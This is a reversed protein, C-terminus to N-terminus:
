RFDDGNRLWDSVDVFDVLRNTMRHGRQRHGGLCRFADAPHPKEFPGALNDRVFFVNCGASDCCLLTYGKIRGLEVFAALSARLLDNRGL